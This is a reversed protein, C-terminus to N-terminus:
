PPLEDLRMAKQGWGLLQQQPFNQFTESLAKLIVVSPASTSVVPQAQYFSWFDSKPKVYLARRTQPTDGWLSLTAEGQSNTVGMAPLLSGFLYVEAGEVPTQDPGIVVMPIAISSAGAFAPTVMPPAYPQDLIKLPQDEEVILHGQGQQHLIQAKSQEMRAVIVHPAGPLGDALAAVGAKPGIRDVVEIDPNSRLAQEVMGLSLPSISFASVGAARRTAVLYQKREQGQVRVGRQTTASAATLPTDAKVAKAGSKPDSSADAGSKQTMVNEGNNQLELCIQTAM